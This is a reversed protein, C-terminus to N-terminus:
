WPVSRCCSRWSRHRVPSVSSRCGSLVVAAVLGVVALDMALSVTVFGLVQVPGELHDRSLFGGTFLGYRRQLLSSELVTLSAAGVLVVTWWVDLRGRFSSATM